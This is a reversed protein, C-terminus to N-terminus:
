AAGSNAARAAKAKARATKISAVTMATIENAERILEALLAPKVVGAEVLLEMWFASEDSEDEVIGL